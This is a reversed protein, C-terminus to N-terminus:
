FFPPAWHAKSCAQVVARGLEGGLDNEYSGPTGYAGTYSALM